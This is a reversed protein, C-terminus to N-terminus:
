ESEPRAKLTKRRLWVPQAVGAIDKLDTTGFYRGDLSKPHDNLLFIEGDQLTLCGSWAPMPRGMSDVKLAEALAVGNVFVQTEDRCIEDGTQAAVHKLLPTQPPLYSRSEILQAAKGAPSVLAVEGRSPAHYAISYLGIPASESANWILRPRPDNTVAWAIAGVGALTLVSYGAGYFFPRGIM